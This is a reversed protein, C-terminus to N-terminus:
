QCAWQLGRFLWLLGLWGGTEKASCRELQGVQGGLLMCCRGAGRLLLAAGLVNGLWLCHLPPRVVGGLRLRAGAPVQLVEQQQLQLPM